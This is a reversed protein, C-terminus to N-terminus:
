LPFVRRLNALIQRPSWEWGLMTKVVDWCVSQALLKGSGYLHRRCTATRLQAHHSGYDQSATTNRALKRGITSPARELTRAVARMNVIGQLRMSAITSRDELRLQQYTTQKQKHV